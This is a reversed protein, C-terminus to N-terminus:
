GPVASLQNSSKRRIAECASTKPLNTEGSCSNRSVAPAPTRASKSGSANASGGGRAAAPGVSSGTVRAISSAVDDAVAIASAAACRRALM